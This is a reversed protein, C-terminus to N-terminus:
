QAQPRPEQGSVGKAAAQMAMAQEMQAKQQEQIQQQTAQIHNELAQQQMENYRNWRTGLRDRLHINRHVEHPELPYVWAPTISPDINPNDHILANERHARREHVMQERFIKDVQGFELMELNARDDPLMGAERLKMIYEIKLARSRPLGSQSIVRVDTNGRLEAGQFKMVENTGDEGVYRIYRDTTYNNQVIRMALSWAESVVNNIRNLLPNLVVDDQEILLNVLAGSAHSAREPLQGFSAPGLNMVAQMERELTGKFEGMQFPFPDTKLQHPEGARPNYDIFVGYDNTWQRKSLLSGIPTMVKLKSARDMAISEISVMDNYKRQLPIVDKIVSENYQFEKEYTDIPVLREETVFFPIEKYENIGYDLVKSGSVFIWINKTWLEKVVATRGTVDERKDPASMLIDENDNLTLSYAQSLTMDKEKLTGKDIDYNSEVEEADDEYGYVFWRWDDRDYYLPDVRCNFPPVCQIDVDGEEYVPKFIGSGESSPITPEITGSALNDEGEESNEEGKDKGKDEEYGLLGSDSENWYVRLFGRNCIITWLKVDAVTQTFKLKEALGAIVADGCRAAEIDEDESTNPIISMQPVESTLKALLTRVYPRLKNVIIKHQRNLPVEVLKKSVRNYDYNQYGAVWAIYKRWRPYRNLVDPHNEWYGNIKKIVYEEEGDDLPQKNALIKKEISRLNL